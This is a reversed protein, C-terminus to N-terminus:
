QEFPDRALFDPQYTKWAELEQIWGNDLGAQELAEVALRHERRTLRRSPGQLGSAERHRHAPYFQAMLSVWVEPGLEARIWGLVERTNQLLGPLVLHRVVMGRRALGEGDCELPGVQRWMKVLARRNVEVYSPTDSLQRALQEDAYKVDPLYVDVVGDLLDLVTARDFGNTNYVLPLDLGRERALALAEVLVPLHSTPSVWEINHCGRRQLEVFGFALQEVSSSWEQRGAGPPHSIQHNQCFGCRMTCGTLFVTGAGREGSLAPEEGRHACMAAVGPALPQGCFGPERSRDVACRRPCLRCPRQLQRLQRARQRLRQSSLKTPIDNNM